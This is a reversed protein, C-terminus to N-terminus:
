ISFFSLNIKMKMNKPFTDYIEEDGYITITYMDNAFYNCPHIEFKVQSNINVHGDVRMLIYGYYMHGEGKDFYFVLQEIKAQDRFQESVAWFGPIMQTTGCDGVSQIFFFIVMLLVVSVGILVRSDM